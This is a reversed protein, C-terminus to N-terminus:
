PAAEGLVRLLIEPSMPKMVHHDFLSAALNGGIGPGYGSLAVYRAKDGSIARLQRALEYGDIDPLALDLLFLDPRFGAMQKLADSGSYAVRADHGM